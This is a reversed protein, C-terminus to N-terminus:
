FTRAIQLDARAEPVPEVISSCLTCCPVLERRNLLLDILVVRPGDPLAANKITGIASASSSPRRGLAMAYEMNIKVSQACVCM